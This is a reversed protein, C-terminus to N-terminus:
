RRRDAKGCPPTETIERQFRADVDGVYGDAILHVEPQALEVGCGGTSVALLWGLLANRAGRTM